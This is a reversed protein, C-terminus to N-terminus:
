RYTELLARRKEAKRSEAVASRWGDDWGRMYTENLTTTALHPQARFAIGDMMKTSLPSATTQKPECNGGCVDGRLGPCGISHATNM